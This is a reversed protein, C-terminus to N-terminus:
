FKGLANIPCRRMSSRRRDLSDLSRSVRITLRSPWTADTTQPQKHIHGFSSIASIQTRHREACRTEARKCEYALGGERMEGDGRWAGGAM